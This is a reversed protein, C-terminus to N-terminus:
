SIWMDQPLGQTAFIVMIKTANLIKPQWSFLHRRRCKSVFCGCESVFVSGSRRGCPCAVVAAKREKRPLLGEHGYRNECQVRELAGYFFPGLEIHVSHVLRRAGGRRTGDM